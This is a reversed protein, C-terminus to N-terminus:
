ATISNGDGPAISLVQVGGMVNQIEFTGLLDGSVDEVVQLTAQSSSIIFDVYLTFSGSISGGAAFGSGFGVSEGVTLSSIDFSGGDTTIISSAIDAENSGQTITFTLDSTSGQVLSSLSVSVEPTFTVAPLLDFAFTQVDVFEMESNLTSSVNLSSCNHRTVPVKRRSESFM